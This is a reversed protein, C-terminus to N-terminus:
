LPRTVSTLMRTAPALPRREHALSRTASALALTAPALALNVVALPPTGAYFLLPGAHRARELVKGLESRAVLGDPLLVLGGGPAARGADHGQHAAGAVVQARVSGRRMRGSRGLVPRDAAHDGQGRRRDGAEM